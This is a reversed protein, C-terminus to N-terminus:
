SEDLHDQLIQILRHITEEPLSNLREELIDALQKLEETTAVAEDVASVAEEIQAATEAFADIETSVLDVSAAVEDITAQTQQVEGRVETRVAAIQADVYEESALGVMGGVTACGSLTIAGLVVLARTVKQMM